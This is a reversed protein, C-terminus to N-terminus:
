TGGDKKEIWHEKRADWERELADFRKAQEEDLLARIGRSMEARIARFRPRTEARLARTQVSASDLITKVEARQADTLELEESFHRLLRESKEEQSHRMWDPIERRAQWHGFAGGLLFGAVLGATIQSWALKSM